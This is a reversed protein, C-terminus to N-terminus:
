EQYDQPVREEDYNQQIYIIFEQIIAKKLGFNRNAAEVLDNHWNKTSIKLKPLVACATEYIVEDEDYNQIYNLYEYVLKKTDM